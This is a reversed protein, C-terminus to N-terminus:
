RFYCNHTICRGVVALLLSETYVSTSNEFFVNIGNSLSVGVQRKTSVFLERKKLIAVGILGNARASKGRGKRWGSASGPAPRAPSKFSRGHVDIDIDREWVFKGVCLRFPGQFSGRGSKDGEPEPGRCLRTKIFPISKYSFNTPRNLAICSGRVFVSNRYVEM